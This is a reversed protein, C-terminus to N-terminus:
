SNPWWWSCTCPNSDNDWIYSGIFIDFWSILYWECAKSPFSVWRADEDSGWTYYSKSSCEFWRITKWFDTPDWLRGIAGSTGAGYLSEGYCYNDLIDIELRASRTYSSYVLKGWEFFMPRLWRPEWHGLITSSQLSFVPASPQSLQSSTISFPIPPPVTVLRPPLLQILILLPLNTGSDIFAFDAVLSDDVLVKKKM